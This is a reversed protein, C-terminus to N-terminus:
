IRMPIMIMIMIMVTTITIMLIRTIMRIIMIIM